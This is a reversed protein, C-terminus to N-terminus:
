NAKRSRREQPQQAIEKPEWNWPDFGVGFFTNCCKSCPQASMDVKEYRCNTCDKKM